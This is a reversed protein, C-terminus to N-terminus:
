REEAKQQSRQKVLSELLCTGQGKIELQRPKIDILVREVAQLTSLRIECDVEVVLASAPSLRNKLEGETSLQGDVYILNPKLLQVSVVKKDPPGALAVASLVMLIPALRKM